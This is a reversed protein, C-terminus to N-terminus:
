TGHRAGFGMIKPNNSASKSPNFITILGSPSYMMNVASMDKWEQGQGWVDVHDTPLCCCARSRM